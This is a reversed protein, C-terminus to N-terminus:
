RVRRWVSIAVTGNGTASAPVRYSLEDGTLQVERKQETADWNPFSALEIRFTILGHDPDLTVHGIHSSMGLAAAQYEEPTGRKKDGTEFRPRGPRFIQMSYRGDDAIMLLGQPNPGYSAARTGDPRIEDAARLTWTGALSSRSAACGSAIFCCAIALHATKM